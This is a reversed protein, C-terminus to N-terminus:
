GGEGPKPPLLDRELRMGPAVHRGALFERAKMARKGEPQLVLLRLVHGDGAAVELRDAEARVITGPKDPTVASLVETRHILVRSGGLRASV